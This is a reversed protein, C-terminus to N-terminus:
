VTHFQELRTLLLQHRRRSVPVTSRDSMVVFGGDRRDFKLLHEINIIHSNHLRVFRKEDLIEEFKKITKSLVINKQNARVVTTYCNDSEIRIISSLNEIILGDNTPLVIKESGRQEQFSQTVEILAQRYIDSVKTNGKREQHLKMLKDVTERLEDVDIPKLLYDIANAKVAKIGYKDHATVFVVSFDRNQISELLDFGLGGPMQIDLFVIDPQHTTLAKKASEVSNAQAVVTISPCYTTLLSQLTSRSREEDDVLLATLPQTTIAM